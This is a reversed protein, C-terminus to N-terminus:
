PPLHTRLFEAPNLNPSCRYGLSEFHALADEKSGLFAIEGHTLIMVNDFLNFIDYSPQLLSVLATTGVDVASRLARLVDYSASSDLGTSPEDFLYISSDKSTEVGITLRKKEGGSLGRLLADGAVTNARHTLGLLEM